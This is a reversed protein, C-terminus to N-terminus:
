SSLDVTVGRDDTYKGKGDTTMHTSQITLVFYQEGPFLISVVIDCIKAKWKPMDVMTFVPLDVKKKKAM